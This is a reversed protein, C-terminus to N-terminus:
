RLCSEKCRFPDLGSGVTDEMVDERELLSGGGGKGGGTDCLGLGSLGQTSLVGGLCCKM